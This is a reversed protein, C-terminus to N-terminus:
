CVFEVGVRGPDNGVDSFVVGDVEQVLLKDTPKMNGSKFVKDSFRNAPGFDSLVDQRLSRERVMDQLEQINLYPGKSVCFIFFM